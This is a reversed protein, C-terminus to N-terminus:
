SAEGGGTRIAVRASLGPVLRAQPPVETLRIKVPVRQVVRVFNGTANDAPFLSFAAGSGPALSDVVGRIEVGSYGDVDIRVPQGIRVHELQTEKLNAVVWVERVPVVALATSGAAVFAGVRVQRAGVVGDVPAIVATNRLDISALEVAARAQSLAATAASRRAALVALKRREAALAAEGARVTADAQAGAAEFKEFEAQSVADRRVLAGYRDLNNSALKRAAAASRLRAESEAILAVQLRTEADLSVLAAEASAVSAEAQWLRARFDRDDIRFLVDGAAVAANDEVDVEVVYGSVRPAIATIDARVYANDSREEFRGFTLWPWLWSWALAVFLASLAALLVAKLPRRVEMGSENGPPAPIDPTM